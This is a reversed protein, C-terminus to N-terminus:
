IGGRLRKGLMADIKQVVRSSTLAPDAAGNVTVNFVPAQAQQARASRGGALAGLFLEPNRQYTQALLERARDPKSLPIIVEPRNGEGVMALQETDVFGGEAYGMIKQVIGGVLFGFALAAGLTAISAMIAAPTFMALLGSSTAAGQALVASNTQANVSIAAASGTEMTAIDSGLKAANTEANMAIETAQDQMMMSFKEYFFAHIHGFMPAFLHDNLYEGFMRVPSLASAFVEQFASGAGFIPDLFNEAMTSKMTQGFEKFGETFLQQEVMADQFVKSLAQSAALGMREFNLRWAMAAELAARRAADSQAGWADEGADGADEFGAAVKEVERGVDRVKEGLHGMRAAAEASGSGSRDWLNQLYKLFKGMENAQEELPLGKISDRLEIFRRTQQQSVAPFDNKLADLYVFVQRNVEQYSNQASRAAEKQRRMQEAARTLSESLADFAAAQEDIATTNREVDQSSDRVEATWKRTAAALARIKDAYEAAKESGDDFAANLKRETEFSLLVVDRGVDSIAQDLREMEEADDRIWALGWQLTYFMGKLGNALFKVGGELAAFAYQLTNVVTSLGTKNGLTDMLYGVTDLLIAFGEVVIEVGGSVLDRLNVELDGVTISGDKADEALRELLDTVKALSENVLENETIFEGVSELLDGWANTAAQVSGAFTERFAEASGGFQRELEDLILAQAGATDGFEQLSKIAKKQEESFTIGVRTLMSLGTAPDNLAKGVQVAASNLDMGMATAVDLVVATTREFIGGAGGINTFTLLLNQAAITTEDGFATVRQLQAAMGTLEEATLGAAGGTSRLVTELQKEVRAQEAAAQIPVAVARGLTQMARTVGGLVNMGSSMINTLKFTTDILGQTTKSVARIAKSAQDRGVLVFDHQTKRAM